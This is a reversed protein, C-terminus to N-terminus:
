PELHASHQTLTDVHLRSTFRVYSGPADCTHRSRGLLLISVLVCVRRMPGVATMTRRSRANVEVVRESVFNGSHAPIITQGTLTAGSGASEARSPAERAALGQSCRASCADHEDLRALELRAGALHPVLPRASRVAVLPPSREGGCVDHEHLHSLTFSRLMM